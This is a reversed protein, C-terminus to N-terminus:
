AAAVVPLLLPFGIDAGAQLETPELTQQLFIVCGYRRRLVEPAFGRFGDRFRLRARAGDIDAWHIRIHTRVFRPWARLAALRQLGLARLEASAGFPDTGHVGLDAHIYHRPPAVRREEAGGV